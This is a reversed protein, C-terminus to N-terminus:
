PKSTCAHRGAQWGAQRCLYVYIYVDNNPIGQQQCLQIGCFKWTVTPSTTYCWPGGGARGDPNRCYNSADDLTEDPFDAATFNHEHPFQSAWQQCTHGSMTTAKHGHYEAGIYTTLCEPQVLFM